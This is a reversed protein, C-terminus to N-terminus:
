MLFQIVKKRLRQIRNVVERAIGENLMSEDPTIDLLILVQFTLSYPYFEVPLANGEIGM